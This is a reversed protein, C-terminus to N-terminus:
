EELDKSSNIYKRAADLSLGEHVLKKHIQQFSQCFREAEEAGVKKGAALKLKEWFADHFDTGQNVMQKKDGEDLADQRQNVPEDKTSNSTSQGSSDLDLQYDRSRAVPFLDLLRRFEAEDM